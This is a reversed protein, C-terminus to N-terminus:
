WARCTGTRHPPMRYVAKHRRTSPHVPVTCVRFRYIGICRCISSLTCSVIMVPCSWDIKKRFVAFLPITYNESPIIVLSIGFSFLYHSINMKKIGKKTASIAFAIILFISTLALLMGVLAIDEFFKYIGWFWGRDHTKYYWIRFRKSILGIIYLKIGHQM